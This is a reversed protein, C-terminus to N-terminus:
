SGGLTDILLPRLLDRISVMGHMAGDDDIVPVHRITADIMRYFVDLVRDDPRASVVTATMANRATVDDVDAGQALQAVIDRESIIGAIGDADAVIAAGVDAEWLCHAVARLTEGPRVVVQPRAASLAHDRVTLDMM